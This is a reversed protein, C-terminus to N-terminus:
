KVSKLAKQVDRVREAPEEAKEEEKGHHRV